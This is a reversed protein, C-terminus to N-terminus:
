KIGYQSLIDRTDITAHESQYQEIDKWLPQMACKLSYAKSFCYGLASALGASAALFEQLRADDVEGRTLMSISAIGQLTTLGAIFLLHKRFTSRLAAFDEAREALEQENDIPRHEQAEDSFEQEDM